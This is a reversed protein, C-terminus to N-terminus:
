AARHGSVRRMLAGFDDPPTDGRWAIVQDPRILAYRRRYLRRLAGSEVGLYQVPWRTRALQAQMAASTADPEGTDLLTFEPGFRDFLSVGDALWLHPPRGGPVSTPEYVNARDPPPAEGDGVVIPSADYRAGFTIGPIDFEARAHRGLYEGAQARLAAGRVDDDELGPVPAYLGISDAFARAFATNRLAVPRREPEYSDLLTEPAQGRAVMALKWALNIADEVGTNYGLGGTPTFLHAADGALFVRGARLREAVLAHGANWSSRSLVEVPCQTGLSQYLMACAREDSWADADEDARLQAHYVFEGRGDIAAMFSRREPNFSWYMWAPPRDIVRYLAPSRVHISHMRGGMFDRVVGTQGAYELGLHRRVASRAGDCGVLWRADIRVPGSHPAHAQSHSGAEAGPRAQGARPPAHAAAGAVGDAPEAWARVGDAHEELRTARMGFLLRVSPLARVADLLVEEIYMQSCRHPLEAASWSGSLTRVLSSADRSSPLSFRALEHRAYRTFYTIDTPYDAPLGLARIRAALGLRRFHEMTRAQTANAAPHASTGPRDNVLVAPVGRRGLEIALVMGVPGAGVIAVECRISSSQEM